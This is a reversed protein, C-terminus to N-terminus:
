LCIEYSLIEVVKNLASIKAQLRINHEVDASTEFVKKVDQMELDCFHLEDQLDKIMKDRNKVQKLLERNYMEADFLLNTLCEVKDNM